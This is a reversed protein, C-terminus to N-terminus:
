PAVTRTPGSALVEIIRDAVARMGQATPHFPCMLTRLHLGYVWPDASGLGHDHPLSSAAVLDAGTRASADAFAMSLDRAVGQFHEIDAASLPTRANAVTAESVVPFYDVLIVRATTARQRVRDVIRELGDTAAARQQPTVPLLPKKERMRRGLAETVRHRELHHATAASIMSPLYGLDNGAATVTVLDTDPHVANIQPEFTTGLMRQSTDLITTTTAGSVTADVLNAGFHAAVLHAYNRESRLASRNAVPRIGPGAAFSSGLAVMQTYTV